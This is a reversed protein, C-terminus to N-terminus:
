FGSAVGGGGGNHHSLIGISTLYEGPPWFHGQNLLMAKSFPIHWSDWQPLKSFEGHTLM